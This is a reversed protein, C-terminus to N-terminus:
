RQDNLLFPQSTFSNGFKGVLPNFTCSHWASIGCYCPILPGSCICKSEVRKRLNVCMSTFCFIFSFCHLCCRFIYNTTCEGAKIILGATRALRPPLSFFFFLSILSLSLLSVRLPFHLKMFPERLAPVPLQIEYVCLCSQSVNLCVASLSTCLAHVCVCCVYVSESLCM